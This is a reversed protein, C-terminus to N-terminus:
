REERANRERQRQWKELLKLITNQMDKGTYSKPFYKQIEEKSFRIQEKQNAKEESMVACIVGTNLRGQRSFNRLRQAQSLSPTADAYEIENLLAQQEENTLYSLEVAPTLAIKGEDVMSLLEPILYTLRIYRYLTDKGIGFSQAIVDDNRMRTAPQSLTRESKKAAEWKMKYAFARESPLINERHLNADAMMSVAQEDTLNRVIVPIKEMGLEKCIEMRRHGSIVEYESESLPRVILPEVAGQTKISQLLQEKEEGDRLKFPHNQFPVLSKLDLYEITENDQM